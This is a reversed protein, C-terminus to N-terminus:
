GHATDVFGKFKPSRKEAFATTSELFDESAMRNEWVAFPGKGPCKTRVAEPPRQFADPLSVSSMSYRVKKLAQLTFLAGDAIEDPIKRTAPGLEGPRCIRHVFGWGKAATASMRRGTLMMEIAVKIQILRALHEVAPVIRVFNSM